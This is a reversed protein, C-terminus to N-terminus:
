QRKRVLDFFHMGALAVIVGVGICVTPIDHYYIGIAIIATCLAVVVSDYIIHGKSM